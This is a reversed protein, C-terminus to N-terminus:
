EVAQAEILWDYAEPDKDRATPCFKVLQAMLNMRQPKTFKRRAKQWFQEATVINDPRTTARAANCTSVCQERALTVVRNLHPRAPADQIAHQQIAFTLVTREYRSLAIFWDNLICANVQWKSWRPRVQEGFRDMFESKPM